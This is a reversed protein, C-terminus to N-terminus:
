RTYILISKRFIQISVALIILMFANKFKGEDVEEDDEEKIAGYYNPNRVDQEDQWEKSPQYDEPHSGIGREVQHKYEEAGLGALAAALAAAIAKDKWTSEDLEQNENGRRLFNNMTAIDHSTPNPIKKLFKCASELKEPSANKLSFKLYKVGADGMGVKKAWRMIISSHNPGNGAESMSQQANMSSTQITSGGGNNNNQQPQGMQNPQQQQNPMVIKAQNQTSLTGLANQLAQAAPDNGTIDVFGQGMNQNSGTKNVVPMPKQGPALNENLENFVDKLTKPGKLSEKLTKKKRPGKKPVSAEIQTLKDLIDKM